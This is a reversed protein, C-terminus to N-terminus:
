TVPAVGGAHDMSQAVHAPARLHALRRLLGPQEGDDAEEDPSSAGRPRGRRIARLDDVTVLGDTVLTKVV